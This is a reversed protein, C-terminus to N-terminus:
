NRIRTVLNFIKNNRKNLNYGKKYIQKRNLLTGKLSRQNYQSIQMCM